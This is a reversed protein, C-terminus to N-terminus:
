GGDGEAREKEREALLAESRKIQAEYWEPDDMLYDPLKTERDIIATEIQQKTPPNIISSEGDVEARTKFKLFANWPPTEITAKVLSAGALCSDTLDTSMEAGSLDAGALVVRRFMSNKLNSYLLAVGKLNVDVFSTEELNVYRMNAHCFDSNLIKSDTLNAEEFSSRSFDSNSFFCNSVNSEEFSVGIMTSNEFSVVKLRALWLSAERLRAQNMSINYLCSDGFNVKEAFVGDFDANKISSSAFNAKRFFGNSCNVGDLHIKSLDLVHMGEDEFEHRRRALVTMIAQIDPPSPELKEDSWAGSANKPRKAHERVYATLVEMIPWHDRQSEQAIRELAYIAGLRVELNKEGNSHTAGLQDIARTFRETIQGQQNVELRKWAFFAAALVATGGVIKIYLELVDKIGLADYPLLFLCLLAFLAALALGIENAAQQNAKYRAYLFPLRKAFLADAKQAYEKLLKAATQAHDKLPHSM